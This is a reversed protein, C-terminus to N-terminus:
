VAKFEINYRRGIRGMERDTLVEMIEGVAGEDSYLSNPPIFGYKQKFDELWQTIKELESKYYKLNQTIMTITANAVSDKTESNQYRALNDSDRSMVYDLEKSRIAYHTATQYEDKHIVKFMSATLQPTLTSNSLLMNYIYRPLFVNEVGPNYTITFKPPEVKGVEAKFLQNIATILESSNSVLESAAMYNSSPNKIISWLTAYDLRFDRMANRIAQILQVNVPAQNNKTALDLAILVVTDAFIKQATTLAAKQENRENEEEFLEKQPGQSQELYKYAQILKEITNRYNDAGVFNQVATVIPKQQINSAALTKGIEKSVEANLMKSDNVLRVLAKVYDKQYADTHGAQMITAYRVVAKVVQDFQKHYDENGAVRFEILKNGMNNTDRKFHITRYKDMSVGRGLLNELKELSKTDTLDKSINKAYEKIAAVQSQTYTNRERNFQKLLYQDGLLLAMKLKNEVPSEPESWSMTVHLGTSRNTEVDNKEFYDFLSKMEKLMDQPSEYVPSIIEAGQGQDDDISTDTEVRWKTYGSTSHYSGSVVSSTYSNNVAWREIEEGVKKVGGDQNVYDSLYFDFDGLMRATSGYEERAWDNIDNNREAQDRAEDFINDPDLEMASLYLWNRYEDRYESKIFNAKSDDENEKSWAEFDDELNESEIYEDIYDDKNNRVWDDTVDSIYDDVKDTIWDSYAQMIRNNARSPINDQVIDDEWSIDDLYDEDIDGGKPINTWVSEAEFGCQIPLSLATKALKPDNFNIEFIPIRFEFLRM